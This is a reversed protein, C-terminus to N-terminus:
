AFLSRDIRGACLSINGDSSGAMQRHAYCGRRRHDYPLLYKAYLNAPCRHRKKVAEIGGIAIAFISFVVVAVSQENNSLWGTVEAAIASLGSFGVLLKAHLSVTEVHEVSADAESGQRKPQMNIDRLAEFILADNELHHMVKLERQMLNFRLKEVGSMGELRNRILREETPCDMKQVIYTNEKRPM